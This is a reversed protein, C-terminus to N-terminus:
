SRVEELSQIGHDQHSVLRVSRDPADGVRRAVIVPAPDPHPATRIHRRVWRRRGLRRAVITAVVAALAILAAAVITVPLWQRGAPTVVPTRDATVSVQKGQPVRRGPLPTQSAVLGREEGEGQWTIVLTLQLVDVLQEARSTDLGVLNPVTVRAPPTQPSAVVTFPATDSAAPESGCRQCAVFDYDQPTDPALLHTTFSGQDDPMVDAVLAAEPTFVDSADPFISVPGDLPNWGTGVATVDSQATGSAVSPSFMPEAAPEITFSGRAEPFGDADGCDQCAVFTYLAPTLFPVVYTTSFSGNADPTPSPSPSSPPIPSPTPSNVDDISSFVSVRGLSPDWGSGSVVVQWGAPAGLPDIVLEPGQALAHPANSVLMATALFVLGAAVGLRRSRIRKAV